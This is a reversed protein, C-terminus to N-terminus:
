PLGGMPNVQRGLRCPDETTPFERTLRSIENVRWDLQCPDMGLESALTDPFPADDIESEVAVAAQVVGLADQEAPLRRQRDRAPRSTQSQENRRRRM